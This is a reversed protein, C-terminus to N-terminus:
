SAALTKRMWVGVRGEHLAHRHTEVFGNKKYYEQNAVMKENTVLTVKDLGLEHAKQETFALLRQGLGHKQYAPNVAITDLYLSDDEKWLILLGAVGGNDSELVYTAGSAIHAHYDATLALPKMGGMIPVWKSFSAEVCAVIADHDAAIAPRITFIDTTM